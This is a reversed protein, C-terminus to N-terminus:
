QLVTVLNHRRQCVSDLLVSLSAGYCLSSLFNPHLNSSFTVTPYPLAISGNCVLDEVAFEHEVELLADGDVM